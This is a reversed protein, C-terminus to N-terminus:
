HKQREDTPVLFHARRCEVLGSDLYPSGKSRLGRWGKLDNPSEVIAARRAKLPCRFLFRKLIFNDNSIIQAHERILMKWQSSERFHDATFNGQTM